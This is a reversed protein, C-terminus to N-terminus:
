LYLHWWRLATLAGFVHVTRVPRRPDFKALLEGHNGTEHGVAAIATRFDSALRHLHDGDFFELAQPPALALEQELREVLALPYDLTAPTPMPAKIRQEGISTPLRRRALSREIAKDPLGQFGPFNWEPPMRLATQIVENALFPFRAEVSWAMGFRDNDALLWHLFTHMYWAQVARVRDQPHHWHPALWREVADDVAQDVAAWDLQGSLLAPALLKRCRGLKGRWLAKFDSPSEMPPGGPQWGAFRPYYGFFLEDAGEGSLAVKCGADRLTKFNAMMGLKRPEWCPEDFARVLPDIGHLWTPLPLHTWRHDLQTHGAARLHDAVLAAARADDDGRDARYTITAAPLVESSTALLEATILSSDLGGSLCAGLKAQGMRTARVARSFAAELAEEAEVPSAFPEGMAGHLHWWRGTQLSSAGQAPRFLLWSAPLLSSIGAFATREGLGCGSPFGAGVAFVEALGQPDLQGRGGSLALLGKPESAFLLGEGRVRWYLPKIGLRDRVLLLEGGLADWVAYAFMGDFRECARRGWRAHAALVVEADSHSRFRWGERELQDRLELYNYVEGNYSLWWRGDSSQLPQQGHEVDVIALRASGLTAAGATAVQQQDPGRHWLARLMARVQIARDGSSHGHDVVGAIGCM